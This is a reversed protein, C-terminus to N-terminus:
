LPYKVRGCSVNLHVRLQYASRIFDGPNRCEIIVNHPQHFIYSVADLTCVADEKDVVRPGLLCSPLM